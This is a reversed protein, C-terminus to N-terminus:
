AFHATKRAETDFMNPTDINFSVMRHLGKEEGALNDEFLQEKADGHRDDLGLAVQNVKDVDSWIQTIQDLSTEPYNAFDVPSV